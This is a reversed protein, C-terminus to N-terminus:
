QDRWFMRRVDVFRSAIALLALTTLLLIVALTAAFGWRLV